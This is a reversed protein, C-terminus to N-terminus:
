FLVLRKVEPMNTFTSKAIMPLGQTHDICTCLVHVHVHLMIQCTIPDSIYGIISLDLHDINVRLSVQFYVYTRTDM